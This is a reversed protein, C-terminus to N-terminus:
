YFVHLLILNIKEIWASAIITTPHLGTSDLVVLNLYIFMTIIEEKIFITIIDKKPRERRLQQIHFLSLHAIHLPSIHMHLSNYVLPPM